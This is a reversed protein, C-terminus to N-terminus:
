HNLGGVCYIFIGRGLILISQTAIASSYTPLFPHPARPLVSPILRIYESFPASLARMRLSFTTALRRGRPIREPNRATTGFRPYATYRGGIAALIPGCRMRRRREEWTVASPAMKEAYKLLVLCSTMSSTRVHCDAGTQCVFGNLSRQSRMAVSKTM